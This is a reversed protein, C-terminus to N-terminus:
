RSRRAAPAVLGGRMNAPISEWERLMTTKRQRLVSLLTTIEPVSPWKTADVGGQPNAVTQFSVGSGTNTFYFDEPDRSLATGVSAILASLEAIQRKAEEYEGRTKLYVDSSM